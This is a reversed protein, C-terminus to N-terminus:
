YKQIIIINTSINSRYELNRKKLEKVIFVEM